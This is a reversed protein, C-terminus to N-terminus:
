KCSSSSLSKVSQHLFTHRFLGFISHFKTDQALRKEAQESFVALTLDKVANRNSFAELSLQSYMIQGTFDGQMGRRVRASLSENGHRLQYHAIYADASDVLSYKETYSSCDHWGPLKLLSIKFGDVLNHTGGRLMIKGPHTHEIDSARCTLSRLVGKERVMQADAYSHGYNLWSFALCVKNSSLGLRRSIEQVRAARKFVFFEDVDLFALSKVLPAYNELAHLYAGRQDGVRWPIVSVLGSKMYERLKNPILHQESDEDQNYIHFHTFGLLLHYQLWEEIFQVEHRAVAFIVHAGSDHKRTREYMGRYAFSTLVTIILATLVIAVKLGGARTRM